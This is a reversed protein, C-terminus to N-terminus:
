IGSKSRGFQKCLMRCSCEPHKEKAGSLGQLSWIRWRAAQMQFRYFFWSKPSIISASEAMFHVGAFVIVEAKSNVAAKCLSLSDAVFDAVGQVEPRTYFHALIIANREEKLRKIEAAIEWNEM